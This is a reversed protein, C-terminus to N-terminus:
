DADGSDDADPDGFIGSGDVLGAMATDAQAGISNAAQAASTDRPAQQQPPAASASQLTTLLSSFAATNAPSDSASSGAAATSGSSGTVLPSPSQAAGFAALAGVDAANQRNDALLQPQADCALGSYHRLV